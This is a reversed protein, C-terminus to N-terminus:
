GEYHFPYNKEARHSSDFKIQFCLRDYLSRCSVNGSIIMHFLLTDIAEPFHAPESWSVHDIIVLAELFDSFDRDVELCPKNRTLTASFNSNGPEIVSLTTKNLESNRSVKDFDHHLTIPVLLM